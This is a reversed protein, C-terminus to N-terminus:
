NVGTSPPSVPAAPAGRGVNALVADRTHELFGALLDKSLRRVAPEVIWRLLLPIRRSLGATEEEVYVGNDREQYKAVTYIRWLFGSGEDASTETQEPRGYDHIEQIHTSRAVSYWRTPSVEVYQAEYVADLIVTVFLVSRKYRVTFHDVKSHDATSHNVTSHNLGNSRDLLKSQIITPGYWEAYRGYDRAVALVDALTVHPIFVAGIWDHVLGHPVSQSAKTEIQATVVGGAQLQGIRSPDEGAWLSPGEAATARVRADLAAVLKDWAAVTDPQLTASSSVISTFLLLGALHPFKVSYVYCNAPWKVPAQLGFPDNVATARDGLSSHRQSLSTVCHAMISM